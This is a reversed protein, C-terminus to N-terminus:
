GPAPVSWRSLVPRGHERGLEAWSGAALALLRGAAPELGLWCATLVRLAHGHGVLAVHRGTRQEEAVARELVRRSRGALADLREGPTDGPVVGDTWVSWERGLGASIEATTRGEYGGYDWEALDEEVRVEVPEGARAATLGALEATRRARRRPSTLVVGVDFAALVPALARARDEGRGTLPLDTTGTHQGSLSWATEGHRLLFISM